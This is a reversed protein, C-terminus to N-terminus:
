YVTFVGSMATGADTIVYCRYSRAGTPVQVIIKSTGYLSIRSTVDVGGVLVTKINAFNTGYLTVYSGVRGSSPSMSSITPPQHWSWWGLRSATGGPAQVNVNVTYFSSPGIDFTMSNGDPAIVLNKVAVITGPYSLDGTSVKGEQLNSGTVTVHTTQNYIGYSPSITQMSPSPPTAMRVNMTYANGADDNVYIQDTVCCKLATYVGTAPDITGKSADYNGWRYGSGSGGSATFQQTQGRAMDWTGQFPEAGNAQDITLRPKVLYEGRVEHGDKDKVSIVDTVGTTPGPTYAAPYSYTAPQFTGGSNNSVFDWTYPEGHGNTGGGASLNVSVGGYVTQSKPYIQLKPYVVVNVLTSDGSLIRLGAGEGVVRSFTPNIDYVEISQPTMNSSNNIDVLKGTVVISGSSTDVTSPFSWTKTYDNYIERPYPRFPPIGTGAVLYDNLKVSKGEEVMLTSPNFSINGKWVDVDPTFAPDFVSVRCDWGNGGGGGGARLVWLTGNPGWSMGGVRGVYREDQGTSTRGMAALGAKDYASSGIIRDIHQFSTTPFNDWIIVGRGTAEGVALQGTPSVQVGQIEGTLYQDSPKNDDQTNMDPQGLVIDAATGDTTPCTNWILIRHQDKCGVVLQGAPGFAVGRVADLKSGGTGGNVIVDAPQGSVIKGKTIDNWILIRHNERDCVALKTGWVACQEPNSLDARDSAGDPGKYVDDHTTLDKQGLVIDAPANSTTPFTNWIMIRDNNRDVAILEGAPGTRADFPNNISTATLKGDGATNLDAAGLVLDAAAGMATPLTNYIVVRNNSRDPVILKNDATVFCHGGIFLRFTKADVTATSTGFGPGQDWWNDAGLLFKAPHEFQKFTAAAASPATLAIMMIATLCVYVFIVRRDKRM